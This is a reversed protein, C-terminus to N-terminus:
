EGFGIRRRCDSYYLEWALGNTDKKYVKIEEAPSQNFSKIWNEVESHKREQGFLVNDNAKIYIMYVPKRKFM